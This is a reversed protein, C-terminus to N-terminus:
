LRHWGEAGGTDRGWRPLRTRRARALAVAQQRGHTPMISRDGNRTHACRWGSNSGRPRRVHGPGNLAAVRGRGPMMLAAEGENPVPPGGLETRSHELVVRRVEEVSAYRRPVIYRAQVHFYSMDTGYIM